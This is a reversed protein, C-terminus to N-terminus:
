YFVSHIKTKLDDLIDDESYYENEENQRNQDFDM